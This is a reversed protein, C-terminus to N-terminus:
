MWNHLYIKISFFSKHPLTVQILGFESLRKGFQSRTAAHEATWGLPFPLNLSLPLFNERHSIIWLLFQVGSLWFYGRANEKGREQLSIYKSWLIKSKNISSNARERGKRTKRSEGRAAGKKRVNFINVTLMCMYKFDYYNVFLIIDFMGIMKKLIGAGSSGMSFRGSNLINMALQLLCMM